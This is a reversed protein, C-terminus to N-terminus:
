KEGAGATFNTFGSRRPSRQWLAELKQIREATPPHSNLVQLSSQELRQLVPSGAVKRLFESSGRPDINAALTIKWGLEDAEFENQRSYSQRLLLQSGHSVLSMLGQNGGAFMRLLYYRSSSGILQRLGHRRLVHAMEHALVGALQSPQDAAECLGRFVLIKGGPLALANPAENEVIYFEFRYPHKPLRALLPAAAAEVQALLRPDRTIEVQKKLDELAAKGLEAEWAPPVADAVWGAALGAVWWAAALLVSFLGVFLAALKLNRRSDRTELAERVQAVLHNRGQIFYNFLPDSSAFVEWEPQETDRYLVRGSAHWEVALRDLPIGCNALPSEFLLADATLRLVGSFERPSLDPNHAAAEYTIEDPKM